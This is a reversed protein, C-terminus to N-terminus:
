TRKLLRDLREREKNPFMTLQTVEGDLYVQGHNKLRDCKMVQGVRIFNVRVMKANGPKSHHVALLAADRKTEKPITNEEHCIVVHAGPGGDIHMWWERPYSSLTLDDNEKANEGVKIQIGDYSIYTKM